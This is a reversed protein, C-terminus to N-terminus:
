YKVVIHQQHTIVTEVLRQKTSENHTHEAEHLTEHEISVSSYMNVFM